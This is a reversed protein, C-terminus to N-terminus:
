WAPQGSALQIRTQWALQPVDAMSLSRRGHKRCTEWVTARGGRLQVDAICGSRRGLQSVCNCVPNVDPVSAPCRACLSYTQCAPRVNALSATYSAHHSCPQCALQVDACMSNKQCQRFLQVDSRSTARRGRLNEYATICTQWATPRRGVQGKVDKLSNCTQWAAQVDVLNNCHRGLKQLGLM